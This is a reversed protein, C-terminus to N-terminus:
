AHLCCSMLKELDLGLDAVKINEKDEEGLVNLRLEPFKCFSCFDLSATMYRKTILVKYRRFFLLHLM